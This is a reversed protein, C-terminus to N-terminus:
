TGRPANWPTELQTLPYTEDVRKMIYRVKDAMHPPVDSRSLFRACATHFADIDEVSLRRQETEPEPEPEAPTFGLEWDEWGDWMEDAM